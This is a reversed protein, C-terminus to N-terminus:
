HKWTLNKKLISLLNGATIGEFDELEYNSDYEGLLKSLNEKYKEAAKINGSKQLINGMKYNAILLKHDIYLSQRLLSEAETINGQEEVITALIIYLRANSNKALFYRCTEMAKITMGQNAYVNVLMEQAEANRLNSSIIEELLKGAEEYKKQKYFNVAKNYNIKAKEETTPENVRISFVPETKTQPEEPKINNFKEIQIKLSNYNIQKLETFEKLEPLQFYYHNRIKVKNFYELGQLPIEVPSTIFFGNQKLCHSFGLAIKEVMSKSFYMLVNKCFIFDFYNKPIRESPFAFDDVLNLKRFEVMSKVEQKLIHCDGEPVFYKKLAWEPTSRLSWKKYKGLKAKDIYNQNIDTAIINIKWKQIDPITELLIIALTYPEEGTCCGASWINIENKLDQLKSIINDKFVSLGTKERFFYTEGVTLHDIILDTQKESINGAILAQLLVEWQKYNLSNSASIFKKEFDPWQNIGFYIGFQNEVVKLTEKKNISFEM